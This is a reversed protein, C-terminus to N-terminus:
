QDGSGAAGLLRLFSGQGPRGGCDRATLAAAERLLTPSPTRAYFAVTVDREYRPRGDLWRALTCARAVDQSACALILEDALLGAPPPTLPDRSADLPDCNVAPGPVREVARRQGTWDAPGRTTSVSSATTPCPEAYPIPQCTADRVVPQPTCQVRAPACQVATPSGANGVVVRVERQGYGSVRAPGCDAGGALVNVQRTVPAPAPECVPIPSDCPDCGGANVIVVRQPRPADCFPDARRPAVVVVPPVPSTWSARGRVVVPSGARGTHFRISGHPFDVRGTARVGGPGVVVRGTWSGREPLVTRGTPCPQALAGGSLLCGLAACSLALRATTM